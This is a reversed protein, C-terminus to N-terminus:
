DQLPRRHQEWWTEAELLLEDDGLAAIKSLPFVTGKQGTAHLRTRFM